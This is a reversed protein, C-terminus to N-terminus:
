TCEILDVQVDTVLAPAVPARAGDGSQRTVDGLKPGMMIIVVCHKGFWATMCNAGDFYKPGM